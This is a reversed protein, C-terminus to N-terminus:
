QHPQQHLTNHLTPYIEAAEETGPIRIEAEIILRILPLDLLMTEAYLVKMEAVMIMIHIKLLIWITMEIMEVVIIM